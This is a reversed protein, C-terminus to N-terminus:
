RAEPPENGPWGGGMARYLSVYATLRATEVQVLLLQSSLLVRQADLQDLYPSYGARYRSTAIRLTSSDAVVESALAVRQKELKEVAALGDEVEAFAALVAERYAFAAEDRRAAAADAGARRRGSDFLPALVSGGLQFLTYPHPLADALLESLSGTLAFRPLMEARAADLSRDAAVIREEAADIDPRRRLLDSPLGAPIPPVVLAELGGPHRAIEGPPEGILVSLVHEQQAVSLEIAPVLQEAARYESEAQHLELQSTYGAEALRTALKLSAARLALTDRAIRLRADQGLLGIYAAATTSAIALTVADRSSRSALLSARAAASANALRGFLDLDYRITAEPQGGWSDVPGIVDHLVRSYGGGADIDIEPGRTARALRAAARAEEVRAAAAGVNSNNAIAQEVLATLVPDRFATWWRVDIPAAAGAESRWHDPTVVAASHPAEPRPGLCGALVLPLALLAPRTRM